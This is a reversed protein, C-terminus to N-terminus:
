RGWVALGKGVVQDIMVLGWYRSDYSDPLTGMAFYGGAPITYDVAFDGTKLPYGTGNGASEKVLLDVVQSELANEFRYDEGTIEVKGASDIHVRDGPLGRVVKVFRTGPQYYPATRKDTRFVILDGRHFDPPMRGEVRREIFYVRGLMCPKGQAIGFEYLNSFWWGLTYAVALLALCQGIFVPWPRKVRVLRRWWTTM